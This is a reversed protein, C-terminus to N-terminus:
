FHKAPASRLLPNRPTVDDMFSESQAHPNHCETSLKQATDHLAVTAIGEDDSKIRAILASTARALNAAAPTDGVSQGPLRRAM